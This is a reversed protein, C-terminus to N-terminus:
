GVFLLYSVDFTRRVLSINDYALRTNAGLCRLRKNVVTLLKHKSIWKCYIFVLKGDCEFAEEEEGAEFQQM